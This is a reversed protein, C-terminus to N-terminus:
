SAKKGEVLHFLRHHATQVLTNLKQVGADPYIFGEVIVNETKMNKVRSASQDSIDPTYM